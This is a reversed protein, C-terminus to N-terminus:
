PNFCRNTKNASISKSPISIFIVVRDLNAYVLMFVLVLTIYDPHSFLDGDYNGARLRILHNESPKKKKEVEGLEGKLAGIVGSRWKRFWNFILSNFKSFEFIKRINTHRLLAIILLKFM